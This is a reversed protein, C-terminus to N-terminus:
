REVSIMAANTENVRKAMQILRMEGQKLGNFSTVDVSEDTLGKFHAELQEVLHTYFPFGMTSTSERPLMGKAVIIRRVEEGIHLSM